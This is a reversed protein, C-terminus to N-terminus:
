PEKVPSRYPRGTRLCSALDHLCKEFLRESEDAQRQEEACKVNPRNQDVVMNAAIFPFVPLLDHARRMSEPVWVVGDPVWAAKSIDSYIEDLRRRLDNENAYYEVKTTM